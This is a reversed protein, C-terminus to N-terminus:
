SGGSDRVIVPICGDDDTAHFQADIGVDLARQEINYLVESIRNWKKM